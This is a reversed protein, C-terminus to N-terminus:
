GKLVRLGWPELTTGSLTEGTLLDTMPRRLTVKGSPAPSYNQLFVYTHEGDTRTQATVDHPIQGELPGTLELEDLLQGFIRDKLAGTDRCAQYIARGKGFRNETVAPGGAYWSDAYSAIVKAGKLKLVECYDALEFTEGGLDAHQKEHPYLTDIEEAELGFVEMLGLGPIGGLHCLDNEDVTSLMYTAYLTGGQEVYKRLNEARAEDVLYQMPDVVIKYRSLDARPSVV